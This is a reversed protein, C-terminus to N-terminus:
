ATAKIQSQLDILLEIRENLLRQQERVQRMLDDSADRPKIPSTPAYGLKELVYGIGGHFGKDRALRLVLLVQDPSLKAHREDSLCDLLQRQAAERSKEPWLKPGVNASGGAAKVCEVLAQNLSEM